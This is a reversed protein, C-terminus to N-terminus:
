KRGEDCCAHQTEHTKGSESGSGGHQRVTHRGSMYQEDSKGFRVTGVVDPLKWGVFTDPLDVLSGHDTCDKGDKGLCCSFGFWFQGVDLGLAM